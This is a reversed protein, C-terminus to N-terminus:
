LQFPLSHTAAFSNISGKVLDVKDPAEAKVTELTESAFSKAKDALIGAGKSGADVATRYAETTVAYGVMGGVVGVAFGGVTGVGPVVSGVAATALGSGAISGAVGLADGGLDYALERGGINGQAFDTVSDYSAIGFSIVAGPVGANGMSQILQHSSQSMTQAVATSIFGTGYGMAGAFGTDEVVDGFAELPTMEGNKVARINDVTSVAATITAAGIGAEIGAQNSFQLTTYAKPHQRAFMAEKTSTNSKELMADVKNLREIKAEIKQAAEINGEETVHALQRQLDARKTEILKGQRIEKYHDKPIEIKDVHDGEFYKDYKKSM